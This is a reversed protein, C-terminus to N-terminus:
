SQMRQQLCEGDIYKSPDTDDVVVSGITMHTGTHVLVENTVQPDIYYAIALSGWELGVLFPNIKGASKHSEDVTVLFECDWQIGQALAGDPVVGNATRVGPSLTLSTPSVSSCTAVSVLLAVPVNLKLTAGTPVDTSGTTM